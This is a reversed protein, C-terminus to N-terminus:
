FLSWLWVSRPEGAKALGSSVAAALILIALVRLAARRNSM